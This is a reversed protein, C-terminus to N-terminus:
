GHCDICSAAGSAGMQHSLGHISTAYQKAQSEHCTACNVPKASINDDPHKVTLDSHCSACSNTTHVTSLFKAEDVFLSVAHGTAKTKFLTKDSHCELCASNKIQIAASNLPQVEPAAAAGCRSIVALSLGIVLFRLKSMRLCSQQM